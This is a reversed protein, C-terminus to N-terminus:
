RDLSPDASDKAPPRTVASRSSRPFHASLVSYTALPSSMAARDHRTRLSWRISCRRRPFSSRTSSVAGKKVTKTEYNLGIRATVETAHRAFHTFDDDSLLVLHRPFRERTAAFVDNGDHGM